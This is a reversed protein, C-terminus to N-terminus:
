LSYKSERRDRSRRKGPVRGNTQIGRTRARLGRQRIGEGARVGDPLPVEADRGRHRRLLGGSRRLDAAQQRGRRRGHLRARHLRLEPRVAHHHQRHVAPLRRARDRLGSPLPRRRVRVERHLHLLYRVPRRVHRLQVHQRLVGSVSRRLRAHHVGRLQGGPDQRLHEVLIPVHPGHGSVVRWQRRRERRRLEVRRRRGRRPPAGVPAFSSRDLPRM